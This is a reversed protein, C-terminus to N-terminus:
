VWLAIRKRKSNFLMLTGTMGVILFALNSYVVFMPPIEGLLPMRILEIIHALPNLWIYQAMNGLANPYMVPSFFMVLPMITAVLYELDRFRAGLMGILLIIWFMNVTALIFGPIALLAIPSLHVGLVLSVIFFLPINHALNIMQRLILQAPYISMPLDMNRIISAQRYFLASAETVCGSIFQWTVLGVTLLPIYTARDMKFLISCIFGLGVVGIATSITIWVPGLVSRKYRARVDSWALFFILRPMTLANKIDRLGDQM